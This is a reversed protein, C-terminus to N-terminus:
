AESAWIGVGGVIFWGTSGDSMLSIRDGKNATAKTNIIDKDDTGSATSDAAANAVQGFVADAAAPSVTIINNGDAGVNVFTFLTGAPATLEGVAPLTLTLADTGVFLMKGNDDLTLTKDATVVEVGSPREMVRPEGGIVTFESM